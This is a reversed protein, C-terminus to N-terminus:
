KVECMRRICDAAARYIPAADASASSAASAYSAYSAYSASCAKEAEKATAKDVIPALARIKSADDKRGRADLAAPVAERCAFDAAIYARKVLLERGAVTGPLLRLVPRMIRTRMADSPISDNLRRTMSGIAPCVCEAQDTWNAVIRKSDWGEQIAWELYAIEMACGQVTTPDLPDSPPKHKGKLLMPGIPPLLAM